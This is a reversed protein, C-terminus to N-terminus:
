QAMPGAKGDKLPLCFIILHRAAVDLVGSKSCGLGVTVAGCAEGVPHFAQQDVATRNVVQLAKVEDLALTGLSHCVAEHDM